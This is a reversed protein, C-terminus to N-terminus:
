LDVKLPKCVEKLPLAAFKFPIIKIVRCEKKKYKKIKLNQYKDSKQGEFGYHCEVLVKLLEAKSTKDLIDVLYKEQYYSWYGVFQPFKTYKSSNELLKPKIEVTESDIKLNNRLYAVGEPNGYLCLAEKGSVELFAEHDLAIVAEFAENLVYAPNKKFGFGYPDCAVFIGLLILFSLLKM